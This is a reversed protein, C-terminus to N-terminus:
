LQGHEIAINTMVLPYINGIWRPLGDDSSWTSMAEAEWLRKRTSCSGRPRRLSSRNVLTAMSAAVQFIPASRKKKPPAPNYLNVWIM